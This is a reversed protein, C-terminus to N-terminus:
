RRNKAASKKVPAKKAVPKKAVPKKAVPKKAVAKKVIAKSMARSPKAKKAPVAKKVPKKAIPKKAAPKKTKLKKAVSQAKPLNDKASSLTAKKFGNVSVVTRKSPLNRLVTEGMVAPTEVVTIGCEIMTKMKEEATGKGGSIIAGAHGM